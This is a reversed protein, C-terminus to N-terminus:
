KIEDLCKKMRTVHHAVESWPYDSSATAAVGPFRSSPHGLGSTFTVGARELREISMAVVPHAALPANIWPVATVPVGLGLAENLLGTALTDSIGASWKNLTNFTMPSVIFADAAPLADSEDPRKYDSRVPYGTLQELHSTDGVFRLAAPTPIVCVAFGADQGIRVTRACESAASAGCAVAYLVPRAQDSM